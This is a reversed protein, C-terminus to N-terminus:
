AVREPLTELWALLKDFSEEFDPDDQASTVIWNERTIAMGEPLPTEFLYKEALRIVYGGYYHVEEVGYGKLEFGLVLQEIKAELADLWSEEGGFTCLVDSAFGECREELDRRANLYDKVILKADFADNIGRLCIFDDEFITLPNKAPEGDIMEVISCLALVDGYKTFVGPEESDTYAKYEDFSAFVKEAVPFGNEEEFFVRLACKRGNFTMTELGKAVQYDEIMDELAGEGLPGWETWCWFFADANENDSGDKALVWYRAQWSEGPRSDMFENLEGLSDFDQELRVESRIYSDVEVKIVSDEGEGEFSYRSGRPTVGHLRFFKHAEDMDHFLVEKDLTEDEVQEIAKLRIICETGNIIM